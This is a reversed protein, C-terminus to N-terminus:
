VFSTAHRLLVKGLSRAFSADESRGAVEKTIEQTTGSVQKVEVHDPSVNLYSACLNSRLNELLSRTIAQM